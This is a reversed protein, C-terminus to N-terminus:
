QLTSFVDNKDMRRSAEEVPQAQSLVSRGLLRMVVLYFYINVHSLVVNVVLADHEYRMPKL